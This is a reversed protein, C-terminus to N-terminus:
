YTRIDTKYLVNVLYRCVYMYLICTHIYLVFMNHISSVTFHTGPLYGHVVYM